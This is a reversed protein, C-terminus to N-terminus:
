VERWIGRELFGHWSRGAGRNVLISPSVTIAGDEHEIVTHRSLRGVGFGKAPVGCYWEGEARWYGGRYDDAHADPLVDGPKADPLRRGQTTDGAAM